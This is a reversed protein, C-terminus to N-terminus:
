ESPDSAAPKLWADRRGKATTLFASIATADGMEIARQLTEIRAAFEGLARAVPARNALFIDRWMEPSGSAIRTGDRFGGACLQAQERPAAPDLVLNALAAALAQPLHSSRAVLEDHAEPSLRLVRAELARWLAEVREVAAPSTTTTPTVVCVAGTFLGPRAAAVGTKESGAMPHSGVFHAGVARFLPELEAVVRAKVSGVDTVLAEPRTCPAARAALAAMQGPPTCFVLLDADRVVTELETDAADLAGAALCEPISAARRVYGHVGGALRRERLALGLSGGLLGIGLLAVKQFL